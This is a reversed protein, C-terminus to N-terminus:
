KLKKLVVKGGFGLGQPFFLLKKKKKCKERGVSNEKYGHFISGIVV